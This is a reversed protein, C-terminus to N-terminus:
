YPVVEPLDEVEKDPLENGEDDVIKPKSEVQAFFEGLVGAQTESSVVDPKSVSSKVIIESLLAVVRRIEETSDEKTDITIKM